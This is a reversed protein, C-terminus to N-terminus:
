MLRAASRANGTCTNRMIPGAPSSSTSRAANSAASSAGQSSKAGSTRGGQWRYPLRRAMRTSVEEALGQETQEAVANRGMSWAAATEQSDVDAVGPEVM